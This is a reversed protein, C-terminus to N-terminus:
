QVRQLAVLRPDIVKIGQTPFKIALTKGNEFIHTIQGTGFKQHTVIEGVTWTQLPQASASSAAARRPDRGAYSKEAPQTRRTSTAHSATYSGQREQPRRDSGTSRKQAALGTLLLEAPLEALFMSPTCPMRNGYLRRERAHTIFLREQARTIGVYCLRREEELAARDDLSRFSPFLGDELGVLFVVPFELGKSSHLTMLSVRKGQEELDDLDSALSANALFSTLDSDENEEEFELVANYLEQVNQVREDAEDTGQTRLDQIYGTDELVGQLIDSAKRSDLEQQWKQIIQAFDLVGKAARGALTKVSTEDQVIEWLPVGLEQAARTLAELSTKGIGRRPVNIIRLLSVSDAPNVIVRLYALVDKIEKRDYFRLGGVVKYPIQYRVLCEEFARSQANTRYLIAFNGYELDPHQRILTRIQTTVFEAEDSEDDCRRLVIPEGAGRTPRLVKDIRET